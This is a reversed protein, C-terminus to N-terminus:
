GIRKRSGNSRMSWLFVLCALACIGSIWRGAYESGGIPIRLEIRQRGPPVDVALLGEPFKAQLAAPPGDGGLAAKWSPYYFQSIMVQGGAESDAQVVIHRPEWLQVNTTGVGSVFRAQPGKSAQLASKADLGKAAWAPFWGDDDDVIQRPPATQGQYGSWINLYSLAWPLLLASVLLCWITRSLLPLRKVETMFMALIAAGGLCLLINLRWPYQIAAFALPFRQWVRLSRDHMFLLPVISVSLWFLVKARSEPSGKILVLTACLLSVAGMDFVTMSILRIFGDSNDRFLRGVTILHSELNFWLPLRSVPFYRAHSLASLLYFCSLGTGLMMGATVRLASKLRQGRGSQTVAIALPVFSFILVSVLHSLILMAYAVALGLSWIDWRRMTKMGFYLVLPMWVLAWCESLATRRYTDVALHYPMLMYLIAGMLAVQRTAITSLWLLACIGSGFLALFEGVRFADFHCMRGVPDLLAYVYSPLPPYVFLTPSGLGHNIEVLWRPYLDGAWFQESFHRSYNLHEFTDHGQLMPGFVLMPLAFIVAALALISISRVNLPSPNRPRSTSSKSRTAASADLQTVSHGFTPPSPKTTEITMDNNRAM